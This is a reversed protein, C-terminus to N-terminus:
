QSGVVQRGPSGELTQQRGSAQEVQRDSCSAPPEAAAGPIKQKRGSRGEFSQGDRNERGRCLFPTGNKDSDLWFILYLLSILNM